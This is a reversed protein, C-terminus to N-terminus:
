DASETFLMKHSEKTINLLCDTKNHSVLTFHIISKHFNVLRIVNTIDIANRIFAIILKEHSISGVLFRWVCTAENQSLPAKVAHM